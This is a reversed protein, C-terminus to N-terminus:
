QPQRGSATALDHLRGSDIIEAVIGSRTASLMARGIDVAKIYMQPFPRLMTSFIPRIFKYMTPESASGSGDIYAPRYCVTPGLQLLDRETEAKVRAWMFRSTLSAGEGSIFHFVAKPSEAHLTRAAAMAYDYTIIRYQAEDPAQLTSIGVCYFCADVSAFASRVASFDTFDAHAFEHLKAHGTSLPRRVIARVESVAPDELCAKLVGGGASGSAGLLLIVM